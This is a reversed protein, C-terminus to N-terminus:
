DRLFAERSQDYRFREWRQALSGFLFFSVVVALGYFWVSRLKEAAPGLLIDFWHLHFGLCLILVVLPGWICMSGGAGNLRESQQLLRGYLEPDSVALSSQGTRAIEMGEEDKRIVWAEGPQILHEVAETIQQRRHEDAM